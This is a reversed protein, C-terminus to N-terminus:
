ILRYWKYVTSTNEATVTIKDSWQVLKIDTNTSGVCAADSLRLYHVFTLPKQANSSDAIGIWLAFKNVDISPIPLDFTHGGGLYQPTIGGGEASVVGDADISLGSGIKIGGLVAAAAIPLVYPTPNDSSLVGGAISLGTGVKVGGLTNASATPLTYGGADIKGYPDVQDPAVGVRGAKLAM